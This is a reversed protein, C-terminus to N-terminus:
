ISTYEYDGGISVEITLEKNKYLFCIDGGFATILTKLMLLGGRSIKINKYDELSVENNSCIITLKENLYCVRFKIYTCRSHKFANNILEKSVRLVISFIDKNKFINKM